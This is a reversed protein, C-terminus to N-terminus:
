THLGKWAELRVRAIYAQTNKILAAARHHPFAGPQALQVEILHYLDRARDTPIVDLIDLQSRLIRQQAGTVKKM